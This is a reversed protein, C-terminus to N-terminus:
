RRRPLRTGLWVLLLLGSITSARRLRQGWQIELEPDGAGLHLARVIKTYISGSTNEDARIHLPPSIVIDHGRQQSSASDATGMGSVVEARKKSLLQETLALFYQQIFLKIAGKVLSQSLLPGTKNLTISGTYAIVTTDERGNLHVSGSGHFSSQRGEGEITLRYHYPFQRESLTVHGRYNGKLSAYALAVTIDYVNEDILEVSEIGPITAQLIKQDMICEWVEEPPAQLTYTGEINM